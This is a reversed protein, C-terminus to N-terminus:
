QSLLIIKDIKSQLRVLEVFPGIAARLSDIKARAEDYEEEEILRGIERLQYAVEPDRDSTGMVHRLIFNTDMGYSQSPKEEQGEEDLRIINEPQVESIIQPSHTTAIFQCNPFTKELRGVITRQWEPHLHLDLEDILVVAEGDRTPNNLGPNAESLRRTLDLALTLVGREGDSLLRVDIQVGGKDVFLTPRGSRSEGTRLNSCTDLFVSAAEILAEIQHRASQLGEEALAERARLWEAFERLNLGREELSQELAPSRPGDTKGLRFSPLVFPVRNSLSRHASFYVALPQEGKKELGVALTKADAVQGPDPIWEARTTRRTGPRVTGAPADGAVHQLRSLHVTYSFTAESIQCNVSADLADCGVTIDDSVFRRQRLSDPLIGVIIQSSLIRLGDLLTSKGVGNIGMILNMTPHFKFEAEAFARFQAVRYSRVNM